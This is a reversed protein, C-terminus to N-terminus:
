HNKGVFEAASNGIQPNGNRIAAIVLANVAPGPVFAGQVPVQRKGIVKSHCL